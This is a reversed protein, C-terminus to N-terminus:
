EKLDVILSNDQYPFRKDLPHNSNAQVDENGIQVAPARPGESGASEGRTSKENVEKRSARLESLIRQLVEDTTSMSDTDNMTVDM